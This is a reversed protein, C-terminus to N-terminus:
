CFLSLFHSPCEQFIKEMNKVLPFLLYSQSKKKNNNNGLYLIFKGLLYLYCHLNLFFDWQTSLKNLALCFSGLFILLQKINKKHKSTEKEILIKFIDSVNLSYFSIDRRLHVLQEIWRALIISRLAVLRMMERMIKRLLLM